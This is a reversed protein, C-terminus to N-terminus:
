FSVLNGTCVLNMFHIAMTVNNRATSPKGITLCLAITSITTQTDARKTTACAMQALLYKQAAPNEVIATSKLGRTGRGMVPFAKTKSSHTQRAANRTENAMSFNCGVSETSDIM